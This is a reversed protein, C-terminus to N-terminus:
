EIIYCLLSVTLFPVSTKQQIKQSIAGVEPLDQPLNSIIGGGRRFLDKARCTGHIRDFNDNEALIRVGGGPRCRPKRKLNVPQGIPSLGEALHRQLIDNAQEVCGIRPCIGVLGRESINQPLHIRSIKGNKGGIPQKRIPRLVSDNKQIRSKGTLGPIRSRVGLKPTWQHIIQDTIHLIRNM